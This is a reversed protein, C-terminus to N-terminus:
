LDLDIIDEDDKKTRRRRPRRARTNISKTQSAPEPEQEDDSVLSAQAASMDNLQALIDDVGSPGRMVGQGAPVNRVSAGVNQDFNSPSPRAMPPPPGRREASTRPPVFGPPFSSVPPAGQRAQQQMNLGNMMMGFIPDNAHQAGMQGLAAAQIQSRIQPNNQLIDNLQPTSSRFLTNSLHFMLGSGGVMAILKLEPAMQVSDNYKDHLEEFVEDYDGVNELVSGSWGDLAFKYPNFRKNVYETGSVFSVLMKRQFRISKQVERKKQLRHVEARLSELPTKMSLPMGSRYGNEDLRGYKYLLEEKEAFIEERTM